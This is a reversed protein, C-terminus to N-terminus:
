KRECKSSTLGNCESKLKTKSNLLQNTKNSSKKKRQSLLPKNRAAEIIKEKIKIEGAKGLNVM